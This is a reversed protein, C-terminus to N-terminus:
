YYLMMKQIAINYIKNMQPKSFRIYRFFQSIAERPDNYSYVEFSQYEEKIAEVILDDSDIVDQYKSAM